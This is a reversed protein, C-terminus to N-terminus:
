QRPKLYFSIAILLQASVIIITAATSAAQGAPTDSIFHTVLMTLFLMLAALTLLLEKALFQNGSSTEALPAPPSSQAEVQGSDGVETKKETSLPTNIAMPKAEDSNSSTTNRIAALSAAKAFAFARDHAQEFEQDTM